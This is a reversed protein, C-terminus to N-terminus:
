ILLCIISLQNSKEGTLSIIQLILTLSVYQLKVNIDVYAGVSSFTSTILSSNQLEKSFTHSATGLSPIFVKSPSKM